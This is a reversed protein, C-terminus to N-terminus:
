AVSERTYAPGKYLSRYVPVGNYSLVSGQSLNNISPDSQTQTSARPSVRPSVRNSRPEGKAAVTHLEEVVPQIQQVLRRYPQIVERVEQIVPRVVEHTVRQPEDESSTHEVESAVGTIFIM